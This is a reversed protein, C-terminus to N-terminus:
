KQMDEELIRKFAKSIDSKTELMPGFETRFRLGMGYTQRRDTFNVEDMDYKGYLRMNLKRDATLAYEVNFEPILYNDRGIFSQRVFNSGVNVSLREDLIRLRNKFRIEIESPLISPDGQIEGGLGGLIDTNARFNIDFDVGAILGNEELAENILSTVFLSLQSSIFESITSIGATSINSAVVDSLATMPLFTNFVMLGFVQSNFDIPNARLLRVKNDAFSRLQGALEPFELDFNIQPSFLTGGLQLILNVDVRTRAAEVMQQPAAQLYEALFISLHTRVFYDAEIDLMANVPDGNWRVTGGRRVSFPKAVIAGMTFLYQGTEVQYQGFMEFEGTRTFMIKLNGRGRGRLVDGRTEDFIMTVEADPTMVLNMEIEMGSIKIDPRLDNEVTKIFEEKNVFEIFSEGISSQSQQIPLILQTGTSTTANILMRPSDVSGIFDVSIRGKGLGYYVPNDQRTTSLAIFNDSSINAALVFNKFFDHFLGGTITARNGERDLLIAGTLDINDQTIRIKQNDFTYRTGLYIVKVRGNNVVGEGSLKLDETTGTIKAELDALGEFDEIGDKLIYELFHLSFARTRINANIEKNEPNYNLDLKLSRGRAADAISVIGNLETDAPWSADINVEGWTEKNILLEPILISAAFDPKKNYIGRVSLKTDTEGEFYMKDYKLLENIISFDFKNLELEISKGDLDRLKIFRNGDTIRVNKMKHYQQGIVVENLPDIKWRRGAILMSSNLIHAKYGLEHPRLALNFRVYDATDTIAPLDIKVNVSDSEFNTLIDINKLLYKENYSSDIHLGIEAKDLHNSVSINVNVFNFEKYIFRNTSTALELHENESDIFGKARFEGPDIGDLGFLPLLNKNASLRLEFTFNQKASVKGPEFDWNRTHYPYNKKLLSRVDDSLNTFNFNGDLNAYSGDMKLTIRRKTMSHIHSRVEVKSLKYHDEKRHIEIDEIDINGIISSLDKGTGIISVDGALSFPYDVFNLSQLDINGINAIFDYLYNDGAMDINGDFYINANPDASVFSGQFRYKELEGNILINSYLYNKYEFASIQANLNAKASEFTLGVGDRIRIRSSIKGLDPNGIWRGLQFQKLELDGLYRAKEIGDKVDLQMFMEASGIQSKLTGRAVFDSLFGDFSGSFNFRGLKYFNAPARFGPILTGLNRVDTILKNVRLGVLMQETNNMDRLRINGELDIVGPISVSMDTGSINLLRGTIRGSVYMSKDRHNKYIASNKFGPYFYAFDEMSIETGEMNSRILVRNGFDKLDDIKNFDLWLDRTIVSRDTKVRLNPFIIGNGALYINKSSFEELVFNDGSRLGFQNIDLSLTANSNLLIHAFDLNLNHIRVNKPNFEEDSYAGSGHANYAFRGDKIEFKQLQINPLQLANKKKNDEEELKEIMSKKGGSIRIDPELLVLHTIDFSNTEFDLLNVKILANRVIAAFSSGTNANEEHYSVSQLDLENLNISFIQKEEKDQNNGLLSKMVRGFESQEKGAKTYSYIHCHELRIKNVYLERDLIHLFNRNLELDFQHAFLLTDNEMDKILFDDILVGKIINFQIRKLSVQSETQASLRKTIQQVVINQVFPVQLVLSLIIPTLALFILLKLLRRFIRKLSGSKKNQIEIKEEEM